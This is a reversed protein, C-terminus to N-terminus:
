IGTLIKEARRLRGARSESTERKRLQPRAPVLERPRAKLAPASKEPMAVNAKKIGFGLPKNDVPKEFLQEIKVPPVEAIRRNENKESQIFSIQFVFHLVGIILIAAVAIANRWQFIMGSVPNQKNESATNETKLPELVEEMEARRNFNPTFSITFVSVPKEASARELTNEISNKTSTNM